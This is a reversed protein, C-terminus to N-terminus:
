EFYSIIDKLEDINKYITSIFEEFSVNINMPLLNEFRDPPYRYFSDIETVIPKLDLVINDIGNKFSELGSNLGINSYETTYSAIPYLDSKTTPCLEELSLIIAKNVGKNNNLIDTLIKLQTLKDSILILQNSQETTM